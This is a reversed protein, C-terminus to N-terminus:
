RRTEIEFWTQWIQKLAEFAEVASIRIADWGCAIKSVWTEGLGGSGEPLYCAPSTEGVALLLTGLLFLNAVVALLLLSLTRASTLSDGVGAGGAPRLGRGRRDARTALPTGM